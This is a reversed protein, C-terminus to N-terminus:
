QTPCNSILQYFLVISDSPTVSRKVVLNTDKFAGQDFASHLSKSVDMVTQSEYSQLLHSTTLEEATIAETHM